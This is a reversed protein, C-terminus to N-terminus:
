SNHTYKIHLLYKTYYPNIHGQHKIPYSSILYPVQSKPYPSPYLTPTQYSLGGEFLQTAMVTGIEKKKKNKSTGGSHSTKNTAQLSELRIIRGNKLCEELIEGVKIIEIFTKDIVIISKRPITTRSSSHFIRKNLPTRKPTLKQLRLGGGLPM